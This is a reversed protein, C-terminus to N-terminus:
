TVTCSDAVLILWRFVLAAHSCGDGLTHKLTDGGILVQM